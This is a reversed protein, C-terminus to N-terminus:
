RHTKIISFLASLDGKAALEAKAEILRYYKVLQAGSQTLHTGGGATGGSATTVVAAGLTQQLAQIQLWAARYSVKLARAARRISGHKAIAELLAVVGSGLQFESARFNISISIRRM